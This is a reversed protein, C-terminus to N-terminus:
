VKKLEDLRQINDYMEKDVIQVVKTHITSFYVYRGITGFIKRGGFCVKLRKIIEQRLFISFRKDGCLITMIYIDLYKTKKKEIKWVVGIRTIM